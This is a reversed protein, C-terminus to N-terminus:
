EIRALSHRSSWDLIRSGQKDVARGLLGDVAQAMFRVGPYVVFGVLLLTAALLAGASLEFAFLGLIVIVGLGSFMLSLSLVARKAVYPVRKEASVEIRHVVKGEDVVEFAYRLESKFPVVRRGRFLQNAKWQGKEWHGGVSRQFGDGDRQSRKFQGRYVSLGKTNTLQGAGEMEGKIWSGVYEEGTSFNMTGSGHRRDSVWEGRYLDGRTYKFIGRGHRLSDKFEGEYTGSRDKLNGPGQLMGDIFSGQMHRGDARVLVGPGNERDSSYQGSHKSGDRFETTGKGSRVGKSWTGIFRRGDGHVGVGVGEPIRMGNRQATQGKYEWGDHQLIAFEQVFRVFRAVDGGGIYTSWFFLIDSDLSTTGILKAWSYLRSKSNELLISLAKEQEKTFQRQALEELNSIDLDPAVPFSNLGYIGQCITDFIDTERSSSEVLRRCWEILAQDKLKSSLWIYIESSLDRLAHTYSPKESQLVWFLERRDKALSGKQSQFPIEPDLVYASYRLALNPKGLGCFHIEIDRLQGALVSDFRRAWSSMGSSRVIKHWQPDSSNKICAHAIENLSYFTENGAKFEIISDNRDQFVAVEEGALWRQIDQYSWRKENKVVLLGSILRRMRPSISESEPRILLEEAARGQVTFCMIHRPNMNVFPNRATLLAYLTVGLAYYDVERRIIGSYVEPAAYGETRNITTMKETAGNSVDLLSSIGFDALLFEGKKFDGVLINGPKIDRHIVGKSHLHELGSSITRVLEIAKDETLPLYSFQDGSRRNIPGGEAYRLVEFFLGQHMGIANTKILAPHSISTLVDLVEHKPAFGSRYIKVAYQARDKRALYVEAEASNLSIVSVIEGGWESLRDGKALMGVQRKDPFLGHELAQRHTHFNPGTERNSATPSTVSQIYDDPPLDPTVLGIPIDAPERKRDFTEGVAETATDLLRLQSQRDTEDPTSKRTKPLGEADGLKKNPGLNREGVPM